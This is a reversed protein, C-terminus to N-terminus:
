RLSKVPSILGDPWSASVELWDEPVPADYAVFRMESQYQFAISKSFVSDDVTILNPEDGDDFYRVAALHCSIGKFKRRLAESLVDFFVKSDHILVYGDTDFARQLKVSEKTSMSLCHYRVYTGDKLKMPRHIVLDSAPYSEGGLTVVTDPLHWKRGLEDDRQAANALSGYIKAPGLCVTGARMAELRMNSGFRVKEQEHFIPTPDEAVIHKEVDLKPVIRRKECKSLAERFALSVESPVRLRGEQFFLNM